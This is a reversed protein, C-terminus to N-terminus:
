HSKVLHKLRGGPCSGEVIGIYVLAVLIPAIPYAMRVVVTAFGYVGLYAIVFLACVIVTIRDLPGNSFNRMFFTRKIFIFTAGYIFVNFVKLLFNFFVSHVIEALYRIDLKAFGTTGHHLIFRSLEYFVFGFQLFPQHIINLKGRQFKEDEPISSGEFGFYNEAQYTYKQCEEGYIKACASESLSNIFYPASDTMFDFHKAYETRGYLVAGGRSFGPGEKKVSQISNWVKQTLFAGLFIAVMAGLTANRIRPSFSRNSLLVFITVFISFLIEIYFFSGKLLTLSGALIMLTILCGILRGLSSIKGKVIWLVLALQLLIFSASLSETYLAGNMTILFTPVLAVVMAAFKHNSPEVNQSRLATSLFLFISILFLVNQVFPVGRDLKLGQHMMVMLFFPYTPELPDCKTNQNALCQARDIYTTADHGPSINARVNLVLILWVLFLVGVYFKSGMSIKM